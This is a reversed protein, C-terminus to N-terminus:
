HGGKFFTQLSQISNSFEISLGGLLERIYTNSKLLVFLSGCILFKSFTNDPNFDLSFIILLILSVFIQVFLLSILCKFWSKFFSSSPLCLSLIAFPSCLLFVKLLIYRISYSFALNLFSISIMSKLIGDISFINLSAEELYIISNLKQVLSSFCISTHFLNEGLQRIASSITSNLYLLRDCLFFSSNMCIAFFILKFLFSFPSQVQTICLHALLLKIAYYLLFGLILSNAILLIGNSASTGFISEFYSSTLLDQDIFTIDDLISYLSNDISSFISSFLNNITSLIIETITSAETEM